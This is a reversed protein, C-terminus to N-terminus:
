IAWMSLFVGDARCIIVKNVGKGSVFLGVFWCVLLCVPCSCMLDALGAHHELEWRKKELEPCKWITTHLGLKTFIFISAVSSNM